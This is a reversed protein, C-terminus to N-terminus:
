LNLTVTVCCWTMAVSLDFEYRRFESALKCQVENTLESYAEKLEILAFIYTPKPALYNSEIFSLLRSMFVISISLSSTVLFLCTIDHILYTIYVKFVRIYIISLFCSCINYKSIHFKVM